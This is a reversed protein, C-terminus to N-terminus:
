ARHVEITAGEVQAALEAYPDVLRPDDLPQTREELVVPVLALVPVRRIWERGVGVVHALQRVIGVEGMLSASGRGVGAASASAKRTMASALKPPPSEAHACRTRTSR